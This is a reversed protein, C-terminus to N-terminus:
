GYNLRNKSTEGIDLGTDVSLHLGVARKLSELATEVTDGYSSVDVTLRQSLYMAKSSFQRM